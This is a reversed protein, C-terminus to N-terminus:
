FTLEGSLQMNINRQGLAKMKFKLREISVEKKEGFSLLYM